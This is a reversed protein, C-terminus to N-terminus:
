NVVIINGYMEINYGQIKALYLERMLEIMERVSMDDEIAIVRTRHDKTQEEEM